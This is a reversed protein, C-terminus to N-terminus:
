PSGLFRTVLRVIVQIRGVFIAPHIYQMGILLFCSIMVYHDYIYGLSHMNYHYNYIPQNNDEHCQLTWVLIGLIIPRRQRRIDRDFSQNNSVERIHIRAAHDQSCYQSIIHFFIPGDNRYPAM